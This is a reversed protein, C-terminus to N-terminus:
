PTDQRALGAVSEPALLAAAGFVLLGTFLIALPKAANGYYKISFAPLGVFPLFLCCLLWTLSKRFAEIHFLILGYLFVLFGALAILLTLLEIM